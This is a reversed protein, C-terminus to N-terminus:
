DKKKVVKEKEKEKKKFFKKVNKWDGERKRIMDLFTKVVDLPLGTSFLWVEWVAPAQPGTYTKKKEFVTFKCHSFLFPNYRPIAKKLIEVQNVLKTHIKWTSYILSPTIM